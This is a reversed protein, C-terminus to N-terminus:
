LVRLPERPLFHGLTPVAPAGVVLPSGELLQPGTLGAPVVLGLVGAAAGVADRLRQGPRLHRGGTLVPAGVRLRLDAPTQVVDLGPVAARLPRPCVELRVVPVSMAIVRPRTSATS